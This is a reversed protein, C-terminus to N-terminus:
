IALLFDSFRTAALGRRQLLLRAIDTKPNYPLEDLAFAEAMRGAEM